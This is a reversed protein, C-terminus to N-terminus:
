EEMNMKSHVQNLREMWEEKMPDETALITFVKESKMSRRVRFGEPIIQWSLNLLTDTIEESPKLVMDQLEEKDIDKCTIELRTPQEIKSKGFEKWLKSLLNSAYGEDRIELKCGEKTERIKAINTIETPQRVGKVKISIIFIPEPVDIEMHVQEVLNSIRSNKIIDRAIEKYGAGDSDVTGDVTIKM